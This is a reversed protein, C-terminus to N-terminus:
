RKNNNKTILDPRIRSRVIRPLKGWMSIKRKFLVMAGEIEPIQELFEFCEKLDEESKIRNGLATAAADALVVNSSVVVAADARGLSLSHGVTASSTCIGMPEERPLVEFALDCGSFHGAFIGVLLPQDISIAIDGGNDVVAEDAGAEIVAKLGELALCGAVTAMPGVGVKSAEMCMSKIINHAGESCMYPMLTTRFTPDHQITQEIVGRASMIAEGCYPVYQPVCLITM